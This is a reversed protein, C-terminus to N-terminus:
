YSRTQYQQSTNKHIHQRQNPKNQHQFTNDYNWNFIPTIISHATSMDTDAAELTEFFEEITSNFIASLQYIQPLRKNTTSTWFM